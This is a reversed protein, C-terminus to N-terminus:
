IGSSFNLKSQTGQGIGKGWFGGSGLAIKSQNINFNHGNLDSEPNLYCIIRAQQHDPLKKWIKDGYQFIAGYAILNLVLFPIWISWHIQKLLALLLLSTTLGLWLFIFLLDHSIALFCLAPAFLYLFYYIPMGAVYMMVLTVPGFVTATGFDPQKLIMASPILGIMIPSLIHWLNEWRGKRASLFKALFLITALKAFEAPQFQLGRSYSGLFLRGKCLVSM